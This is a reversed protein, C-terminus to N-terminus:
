LPTDRGNDTSVVVSVAMEIYESSHLIVHRLM